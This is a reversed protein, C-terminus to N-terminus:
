PDTWKERQSLKGLSGVAKEPIGLIEFVNRFFLMFAVGLILDYVAAIGFLGKYLSENKM